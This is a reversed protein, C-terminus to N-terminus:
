QKECVAILSSGVPLSFWKLIPREIGFLFELVANLIPNVPKIDTEASGKKQFQRIILVPLFLMSQFYSLKRVRFGNSELVARLQKRSYRRRHCHYEDHRSWLLMLAPVTLVFWGKDNLLAHITRTGAQDDDMHELVDFATIVDYRGDPVQRPFDMVTIRESKNFQRVDPNIDLGTAAGWRDLYRLMYGTGCGVDLVNLNRTKIYKEMQDLIIERRARYWWHKEEFDFLTKPNDPM